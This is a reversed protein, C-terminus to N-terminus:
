QLPRIMRAGVSESREAAWVAVKLDVLGAFTLPDRGSLEHIRGLRHRVTNVHVRLRSAAAQLQRDCDLFTTLTRILEGRGEADADRLPGLLQEVFPALQEASQQELLADFHVLHQPGAVGGRTRALRLASHSENLARRLERLGVVASYGCVLGLTGFEAVDGPVGISVVRRATAGTLAQPWRRAVTRESGSPWSSVRLRDSALGVSELEPLIAAPHALGTAILEILEGVRAHHEARQRDQELASIELVSELQELFAESPRGESDPCDLRGAPADPRRRVEVGLTSRVDELLEPEPAGTRARVLLQTILATERKRAESAIQSRRRVVADNVALFPVGHDMLLLPLQARRCADLLEIPPELHVEGLGLVIGSVGTDTLAAVFPEATGPRVLASGLTCVLEYERLHPRPDLQETAHVWSVHRQIASPPLVAPTLSLSRDAILDALTM